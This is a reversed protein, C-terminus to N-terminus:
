RRAVSWRRRRGGRRALKRVRRRPLWRRLALAAGAGLAAAAAAILGPRARLRKFQAEVVPWVQGEILTGAAERTPPSAGAVMIPESFAVQVRKPKPLPGVFLHDTGTIAAPILPVGLELALRAAGRHPAGLSGPEPVSIGEPFVAVVGGQRLIVRATEVAEADSEGRRVPFAGLRLLLRGHAGRLTESATMFHVHRRTPLALFFADWFSKHNATIIAPGEKPIHEAGSIRVRFYIRLLPVLVLRALAYLPRSVGRERALRHAREASTAAAM